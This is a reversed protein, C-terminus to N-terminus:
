RSHLQGQDGESAASLTVYTGQARSGNGPLTGPLTVYSGKLQPSVERGAPLTVYSGEPQPLVESNAPLTVYSGGRSTDAAAPAPAQTREAELTM